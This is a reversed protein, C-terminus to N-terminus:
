RDRAFVSITRHPCDQAKCYPSTSGGPHFSHGKKRFKAGCRALRCAALPRRDAQRAASRANPAPEVAAGCVKSRQSADPSAQAGTLTYVVDSMQGLGPPLMLGIIAALPSFTSEALERALSLQAPTFVPEPDLLGGVARTQEVEPDTVERLVVGQVTQRGFPVEVLHGAGIKGELEVPLHYHFTGSIQPINVAIELYIPM